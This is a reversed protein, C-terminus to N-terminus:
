QRYLTCCGYTKIVQPPMPRTWSLENHIFVDVFQLIVSTFDDHTNCRFSHEQYLPLAFVSDAPSRSSHRSLVITILAPETM